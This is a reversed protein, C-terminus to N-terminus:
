TVQKMNDEKNRKGSGRHRKEGEVVRGSFNHNKLKPNIPEKSVHTIFFM